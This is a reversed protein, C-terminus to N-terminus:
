RSRLRSRATKASGTVRSAAAATAVRVTVAGPEPDRLALLRLSGPGPRTRALVSPANRSLLVYVEDFFRVAQRLFRVGYIAGSAGTGAIVLKM